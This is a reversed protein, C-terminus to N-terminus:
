RLLKGVNEGELLATIEKVSAVNVDGEITHKMAGSATAYNISDQDSKGSISAFIFGAMFADGAGVRDVIPQLDFERTTLTERGNWLMGSLINHSATITRRSTAM